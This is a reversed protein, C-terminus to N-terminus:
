RWVRTVASTMAERSSLWRSWISPSRSAHSAWWISGLAVVMERRRLASAVSAEDAAGREEAARALVTLMLMQEIEDLIHEEDFELGRFRLWSDFEARSVEGGSWFAIPTEANATKAPAGDSSPAEVAPKEQQGLCVTGAPVSLLLPIAVAVRSLCDAM